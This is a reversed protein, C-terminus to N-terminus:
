VPPPQPMYCREECLRFMVVPEFRPMDRLMRAVLPHFENPVCQLARYSVGGPPTQPRMFDSNVAPSSTERATGTQYNWLGRWIKEPDQIYGLEQNKEAKGLCHKMWKTALKRKWHVLLSLWTTRHNQVAMDFFSAPATDEGPGAIWLNHYAQLAAEDEAGVLKVREEGLRGFLMGGEARLAIDLGVHLSVVCLTVSYPGGGEALLEFDELFGSYCECDELEDLGIVWPAALSMHMHFKQRALWLLVQLPNGHNEDWTDDDSGYYSLHVVDTSPIVWQDSITSMASWEQTVENDSDGYLKMLGALQAIRRSQPCIRTAIPSQSNVLSTQYLSCPMPDETIAGQLDVEVVRTPLCLGWIRCQLEVPLKRFLSFSPEPQAREMM